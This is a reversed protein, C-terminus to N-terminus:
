LDILFTDINQRLIKIVKIILVEPITGKPTIYEMDSVPENNLVKTDVLNSLFNGQFNFRASFCNM